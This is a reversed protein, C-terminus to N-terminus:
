SRATNRLSEQMEASQYKQPDKLYDVITSYEIESLTDKLWHVGKSAFPIFAHMKYGLREAAQSGGQERDLLVVIDKLTIGTLNRRKIEGNVQGIALLKSDFRTVLDDILAIRDGSNLSGEVLAHQGHARVYKEVDEPTKVDEPLKRTYLAPIGSRLSLADALSIGAMALGVVRFNGDPKFGMESMIIGMAEAAKRYLAPYSSMLRLNIYFPSWLGSALTWGKPNDRHWTLIMGTRYLGEMIEKGLKEKDTPSNM